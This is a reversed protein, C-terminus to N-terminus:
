GVRIDCASLSVAQKDKTYRRVAQVDEPQQFLDPIAYCFGIMLVLM